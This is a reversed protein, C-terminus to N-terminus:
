SNPARFLSKLQKLLEALAIYINLLGLGSVAGRFYGSMWIASLRHSQAAVWNMDWASMWPFALLFLGLELAFIIGCFRLVRQHWKKIAKETENLTVPGNM